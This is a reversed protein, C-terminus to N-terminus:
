RGLNTIPVNKVWTQSARFDGRRLSCHALKVSMIKKNVKKELRVKTSIKIKQFNQIKWKEKDEINQTKLKGSKM